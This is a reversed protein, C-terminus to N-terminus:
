RIIKLVEFGDMGPMYLDLLVLDPTSERVIKVASEGNDAVLVNYEDTLISELIVTNTEMDDVVLVSYKM